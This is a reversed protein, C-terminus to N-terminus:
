QRYGYQGLDLGILESTMRNSEAFYDGVEGAVIAEAKKRHKVKFSDPLRRDIRDSWFNAIKKSRRIPFISQPNFSTRQGFLANFPRRCSMVLSSNSPNKRDEIPLNAVETNIMSDDMAIGNFGLIRDLFDGPSQWLMEVPLVLVNNAGFVQRYYSVPKHYTFREWHFYPTVILDNIRPRLFHDLSWAGGRRLYQHYQALLMSNQERLIILIRAKPFVGAIRDAFEKQERNGYRSSGSLTESSIVPLNGNPNTRKLYRRFFRRCAGVDFELPAPRALMLNVKSKSLLPGFGLNENGLLHTQIWTSAAKAYGIHILIPVEVPRPKSNDFHGSNEPM